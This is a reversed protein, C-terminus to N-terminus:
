CQNGFYGRIWDYDTRGTESYVESIRYGIFSFHRNFKACLDFYLKNFDSGGFALLMSGHIFGNNDAYKSISFIDGYKKIENEFDVVDYLLNKQDYHILIVM